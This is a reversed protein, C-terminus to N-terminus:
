EPQMKNRQIDASAIIVLLFFVFTSFKMKANDPFQSILFTYTKGCVNDRRVITLVNENLLLFIYCHFHCKLLLEFLFSEFLNLPFLPIPRSLM